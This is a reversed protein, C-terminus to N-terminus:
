HHRSTYIRNRLMVLPPLHHRVGPCYQVHDFWRAVNVYQEKEQISLDVVLPHLGYYMFTDAITFQNGALYVKDQLYLNLDKLITKIDEKTCSDLKTVRYELWQQVVARNEPTDGLLEPRKAEKVLYCAITM